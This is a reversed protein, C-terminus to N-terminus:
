FTLRLAFQIERMTTGAEIDTIKGNNGGQCDVCANAGNNGSFAYVRHNFINFADMRFQLKVREM